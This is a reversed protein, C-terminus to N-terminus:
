NSAASAPPMAPPPSSSTGGAGPSGTNPTDRPSCGLLGTVVILTCTLVIRIKAM